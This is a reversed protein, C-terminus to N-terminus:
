FKKNFWDSKPVREIWIKRKYYFRFASPILSAEKYPLVNLSTTSIIHLISSPSNFLKLTPLIHQYGYTSRYFLTM